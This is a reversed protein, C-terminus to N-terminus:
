FYIKAQPFMNKIEAQKQPSFSNDSLDLTAVTQLSAMHPPLKQLANFELYLEHLKPLKSVQVLAQQSLRNLSLDLKLLNILCALTEPLEELHNHALNLEELQTLRCILKLADPSLSSFACNLKRLPLALIQGPIEHVEPGNFELEQLRSLSSIKELDPESLDNIITLKLSLLNTPICEPLHGLMNRTLDLLELKSLNELHLSLPALQNYSLFLSKLNSLSKIEDPLARLDNYSLDLVQLQLLQCIILLSKASLRNQSLLLTRLNSLSAFEEPLDSIYTFCLSLFILRKLCCISALTNQSLQNNSLDLREINKLTALEKPVRQPHFLYLNLHIPNKITQTKQSLLHLGDTLPNTVQYRDAVKLYILKFVIQNQIKRAIRELTSKHFVLPIEENWVQRLQRCSKRLSVIDRINLYACIETMIAQPMCLLGVYHNNVRSNTLICYHHPLEQPVTTQDQIYSSPMQPESGDATIAQSTSPAPAGQDTQESTQQTSNTTLRQRVYTLLRSPVQTVSIDYAYAWGATGLAAITSSLALITRPNLNRPDMSNSSIGYLLLNLCVIIKKRQIM